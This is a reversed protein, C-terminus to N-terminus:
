FVQIREENTYKKLMEKIAFEYKMLLNSDERTLRSFISKDVEMGCIVVTDSNEEEKKPEPEKYEDLYQMMKLSIEERESYLLRCFQATLRDAGVLEVEYATWGWQTVVEKIQEKKVTIKVASGKGDKILTKYAIESVKLRKEKSGVDNVLSEDLEGKFKTEYSASRKRGTPPRSTREEKKLKELEDSM